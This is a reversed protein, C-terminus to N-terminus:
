NESSTYVASAFARIKNMDKVGRTEVGSSVDVGWPLVDKIASTVNDADLGGALLIPYRRAVEAAIAWNFTKGTGGLTGPVHKDLIILHSVLIASEIKRLADSLAETYPLSDLVKIQRIVPVDIQLVFDATEDGCLQVFDLECKRVVSNVFDLPQNAFLGVIGPNGIEKKTRYEKIIQEAESLPLQRRVNEVFVFGLYDAGSEAATVGDCAKKIGCIKFKTM